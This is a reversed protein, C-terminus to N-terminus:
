PRARFSLLMVGHSFDFDMVIRSLQQFCVARLSNRFGGLVGDFKFCLALEFQGFVPPMDFVGHFKHASRVLASAAPERAVFAHKSRAGGLRILGTRRRRRLHFTSWFGDWAPQRRIFPLVIKL